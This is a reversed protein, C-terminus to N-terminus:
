KTILRSSLPAVSPEPLRLLKQRVARSGFGLLGTGPLDAYDILVRPGLSFGSLSRGPENAIM